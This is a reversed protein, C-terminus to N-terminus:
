AEGGRVVPGAVDFVKRVWVTGKGKPPDPVTLCAAGHEAAKQSQYAGFDRWELQPTPAKVLAPWDSDDFFPTKWEDTGPAQLTFKWTGDDATLVKVPPEALDAPLTGRYRGTDHVGAFMLLSDVLDLEVGEVVVALVHRGPPLDVGASHLEAGDVFCAAQVPAYLYVTLPVAAHPNRWRLVVGGCGAPVECNGHEELVLRAPQKRFRDLSNLRQEPM